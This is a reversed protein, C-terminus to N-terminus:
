NFKHFLHAGFNVKKSKKLARKGVSSLISKRSFTRSTKIAAESNLWFTHQGEAKKGRLLQFVIEVIRLETTLTDICHLGSLHRFVNAQGLKRKDHSCNAKVWRFLLYPSCFCSCCHSTNNILFFFFHGRPAIMILQLLFKVNNKCLHMLFSAEPGLLHM